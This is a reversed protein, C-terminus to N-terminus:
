RTGTRCGRTIVVSRICRGRRCCRSWRRGCGDPIRWGDDEVVLGMTVERTAPRPRVESDPRPDRGVAIPELCSPSRRNASSSRGTAPSHVAHAIATLGPGVHGPAGVHLAVATEASSLHAFKLRWPADPEFRRTFRGSAGVGANSVSPVEQGASLTASLHTAQGTTVPATPAPQKVLCTVCHSAHSAHSSHSSHALIGSLSRRAPVVGAVTATLELGILMLSKAIAVTRATASGNASSRSGLAALALGVPVLFARRQM